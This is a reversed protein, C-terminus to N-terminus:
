LPGRAGGCLRGARESGRCVRSTCLRARGSGDATGARRRKRELDRTISSPPAWTNRFPRGAHHGVRGGAVTEGRGREREQRRGRRYHGRLREVAAYRGRGKVRLHKSSLGNGGGEAGEKQKCAWVSAHAGGGRGARDRTYLRPGSQRLRRRGTCSGTSWRALSHMEAPITTGGRATQTM